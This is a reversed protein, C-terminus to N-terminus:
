MAKELKNKNLFARLVKNFQEPAELKAIHGVRRFIFLDSNPIRKHMLIQAWLPVIADYQCGIILTPVKIESLLKRYDVKLCAEVSKLYATPKPRHYNSFHEFMNSNWSYFCSRASIQKQLAIPLKQMRYKRINMISKGLHDPVYHLTSALILSRCRDPAQRYLEQAVIGGMSLGCIHASEIKLFDLLLLIDKAFNEISIGETTESEGHGRLDPIVLEYENALEHQYFWGEKIEGLGHILVLPEGTGLHQYYMTIDGIKTKYM